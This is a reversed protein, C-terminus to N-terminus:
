KREGLWRVANTIITKYAPNAHSADDHGHTYCVIRAKPDKVIWLAPHADPSKEDAANKLLTISEAGEFFKFHYSEDQITFQLPIRGSLEDGTVVPHHLQLDLREQPLLVAIVEGKGHSKTEGAVFRKNYGEWPHSWTAAHLLLIGKGADAFDHLAKQFEPSGWQDHNGSFVLVDAKPMSDLAEALNMTGIVDAGTEALTERDTSIFDRPFHHSAGAGVLLVRVTGDEKRPELFKQGTASTSTPPLDKLAERAEADTAVMYALIDRLVVPGLGDLGEPMLSRHTNICSVIDEKRIETDGGQNRLTLSATNETIVVGALTEGKRTTINWQWYSPDVERNPDIIHVLLEAASHSGMGTLGPGVEANGVDGFKHCVACAATFMTEGNEVDGPKTVEPLFKAIIEAMEKAGPMLKDLLSNARAAVAKDPHQRFRAVNGPGIDVANIKGDDVANLFALSAAPRKVVEDFTAMRIGPSLENFLMALKVSFDTAGVIEVIASQLEHPEKSDQLIWLVPAVSDDTGISVLTRAADIRAALPAKSDTLNVSISEVQKAILSKMKGESDWRSILPITLASTSPDDLLAEISRGLDEGIAPRARKDAIIASLIAARIGDASQPAKAVAAVLKGAAVSPDPMLTAPLINEVFSQLKDAQPSALAEFVIEMERGNAAAILASRTWDNKAQAFASLLAQNAKAGKGASFKEYTKLAASGTEVEFMAGSERMLRIATMRTHANPSEFAAELSAKDKKDIVPVPIEKAEKHQIRWIRGFYHDRDPRVAANAPGHKPGRTDNHIVAQNYFDIVYLAGDPGIRTEIPRFWLDSSRIFETEERGKEKAATYSVGDPKVFYQSVINITPEGVFYSYNWKEPWAGGEYIACGAAATYSGVQDIQKYAAQQWDMLPFTKQGIVMGKASETGSIKGKALVYEPLITHFFVTGSTPQTWFCQGDSTMCLGWTNARLSSFMEIETGDPKFRVVGSGIGVPPKEAAGLCKVNGASYGHTAYIWGDLGWRLNNIVAHTDHTGLGTYLKTRKDAIDDGDTDELLWIDPAASVIVGNEHLVFSTALELKDAFVQKKDMRGDGDTDSLISIRDLPDRDYEGPELSGSDKWVDTNARRLGNPYEPTEVVWMRGKEDWDINMAKNILPEAAVLSIDFEPHLEIKAAAEEPRTPGGIPYRLAEKVTEKDKLLVDSDDMKGAWAIGRLLLTEISNHSFNKYVHGPICVFARRNAIEYTWMQPQIDYVNVRNDKGVGGDKAKPTYAAALVKAEPLIEMDYYIEDVLDFNSTGQTIPNERDTFYLSMHGELFKTQNFNWSGGIVRKYWDHDRSVAGGHIAVVGGGRKLYAEFNERNKGEINGAESAHLIVVDTEALQEATPFDNGGTAKAGRENLLKTWDKLFAPYDHCGPGHTKPGSRIFVRLPEAAIGIQVFALLLILLKKM